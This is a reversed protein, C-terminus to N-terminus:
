AVPKAASFMPIKLLTLKPQAPTDPMANSEDPFKYAFSSTFPLMYLNGDPPPTAPAPVCTLLVESPSPRVPITKSELPLRNTLRETVPPLKLVPTTKCILGELPSTICVTEEPNVQLVTSDISGNLASRNVSSEQEPLPESLAEIKRMESGLLVM